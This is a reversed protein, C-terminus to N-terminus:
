TVKATARIKILEGGREFFGIPSVQNIYYTNGEFIINDTLEIDLTNTTANYIGKAVAERKFIEFNLQQKPMVGLDDIFVSDSEDVQTRPAAICKLTVGAGYNANNDFQDSILTTKVLTITHVAFTDELTAMETAIKALISPTLLNM